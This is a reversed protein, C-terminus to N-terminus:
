NFDKNKKNKDSSVCRVGQTANPCDKGYKRKNIMDIIMTTLADDKEFVNELTRMNQKIYDVKDATRNFCLQPGIRAVRPGQLWYEQDNFHVKKLQDENNQELGVSTFNSPLSVLGGMKLSKIFLYSITNLLDNKLLIKRCFIVLNSLVEEM